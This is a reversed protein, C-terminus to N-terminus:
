LIFPDDTRSDLGRLNHERLSDHLTSAQLVAHIGRLNNMLILDSLDVGAFITEGFSIVLTRAIREQHTVTCAQGGDLPLDNKCSSSDINFAIFRSPKGIISWEAFM